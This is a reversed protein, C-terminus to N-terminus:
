VVENRDTMGTCSKTLTQLDGFDTISIPQIYLCMTAMSEM